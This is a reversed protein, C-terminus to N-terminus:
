LSYIAVCSHVHYLRSMSLFPKEALVRILAGILVGIIVRVIGGTISGILDGLLVKMMVATFIQSKSIQCKQAM